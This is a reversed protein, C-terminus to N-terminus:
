CAPAHPEPRYSGTGEFGAARLTGHRRAWALPARNGKASAPVTTTALPRRLLDVVAALDNEAHPDVGLVVEPDLCPM